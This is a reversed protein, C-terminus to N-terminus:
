FFIDNEFSASRAMPKFAKYAALPLGKMHERVFAGGTIAWASAIKRIAGACDQVGADDLEINWSMVTYVPLPYGYRGLCAFVANRARAGPRLLAQDVSLDNLRGQASWERSALWLVSNTSETSEGLAALLTRLTGFHEPNVSRLRADPAVDAVVTSRLLQSLTDSM